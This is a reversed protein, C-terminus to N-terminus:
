PKPALVPCDIQWCNITGGTDKACKWCVTEGGKPSKTKVDQIDLKNGDSDTVEWGVLRVKASIRLGGRSTHLVQSRQRLGKRRLVPRLDAVKHQAPNMAIVRARRRVQGFAYMTLILGFLVALTAAAFRRM